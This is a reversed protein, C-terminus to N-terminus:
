GHDKICSVFFPARSSHLERWIGNQLSAASLKLIKEQTSWIKKFTVDTILLSKKDDTLRLFADKSHLFYIM